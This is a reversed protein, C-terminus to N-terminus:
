LLFLHTKLKEKFTDYKKCNKLETPLSNWLTPAAHYFSREGTKGEIKPIRLRNSFVSRLNRSPAYLQILNYLYFPAM